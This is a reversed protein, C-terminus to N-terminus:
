SHSLLSRPDRQDMRGLWSETKERRRWRQKGQDLTDLPTRCGSTLSKRPITLRDSVKVAKEISTTPLHTFEKLATQRWHLSSSQRTETHSSLLFPSPRGPRPKAHLGALLLLSVLSLELSPPRLLLSARPGRARIICSLAADVSARHSPLKSTTLSDFGPRQETLCRPHTLTALPSASAHTPYSGLFPSSSSVQSPISDM